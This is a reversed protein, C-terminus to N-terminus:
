VLRETYTPVLKRHHNAVSGERTITLLSNYLTGNGPGGDVRENVGMVISIQLDGAVKSLATTEPGPVAISNQRLRAFVQKTPLHDWMAVKPCFDLWAPYGPLWTEGFAVLEAGRKKADHVLQIARILSGAKDLYIPAFQAIAVRFAQSEALSHGPKRKPKLNSTTIM